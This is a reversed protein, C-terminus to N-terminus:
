RIEGFVALFPKAENAETVDQPDQGQDRHHEARINAGFVGAKGARVPREAKAMDNRRVFVPNIKFENVADNGTEHSQNKESPEEIQDRYRADATGKDSGSQQGKYQKGYLDQESAGGDGLQEIRVDYFGM